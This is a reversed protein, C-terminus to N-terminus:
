EVPYKSIEPESHECLGSEYFYNAMKLADYTSNKTTRLEVWKTKSNIKVLETNTESILQNLDTLNNVDFVKVHFINGYSNICLNGMTEWISNQCNDTKMTYNAYAVISNKKLEHIIKTIEQCTKSSKLRLPIEKFGYYSSSQIKYDYNQDFNNLTSILNRIQIDSYNSDVGILIYNNQIEGLSYHKGNYYKFNIYDCSGQYATKNDKKCNTFLLILLVIFPISNKM